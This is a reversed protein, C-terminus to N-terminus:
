VAFHSGYQILKTIIKNIAKKNKTIKPKGNECKATCFTYVAKEGGNKYVEKLNEFSINQKAMRKLLDRSVVGKLLHLKELNAKITDYELQDSLCTEYPKMYKLLDDEKKLFKILKQLVSVDFTANHFNELVDPGLIDQALTSLKFLGPGKREPFAKKFVTLTDVFGVINTLDLHVNNKVMARLLRPVDFKANHAVLVNMKESCSLFRNLAILADKIHITSVIENNLHLHGEIISLGTINMAAPSIPQTPTVYVNFERNESIAAIQLIDDTMSLGGTELDFYIVNYAFFVSETVTTQTPTVNMGCNSVNIGCNSVNMGCNSVNMGCNSKYTVGESSEM